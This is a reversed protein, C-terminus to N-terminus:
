WDKFPRSQDEQKEGQGFRLFQTDSEQADLMREAEQASMGRAQQQEQQGPQPQQEQNQQDDKQQGQSSQSQQQQDQKQQDRQPEQGQQSQQNEQGQQDQQNQGQGQQQQDQNQQDEGQNQQQQDNKDQDQDGGGGQQQDQQQQQQELEELKRKVFEYNFRADEDNANLKLTHSYNTLAMRWADKKKEEDSMKEGVRYLVNGLNYYGREQLKIDEASISQNFYKGADDYKDDRYAAAGANYNLRPDDKRKQLARQYEKLAADYEGENYDKLAKNPSAAAAFPMLLGAMLGLTVLERAVEPRGVKERPHTRVNAGAERRKRKREPLVMEALLLLVALGLPWHFQEHYQKTLRMAQDSKPLQSLGNEYLVDVTKASLPLYVGGETAGAIQRLLEENLRSKVVNGQEDRIYDIRGKNDAVRLLEGEPTGVGITFIKMGDKGAVQAAELAGPENDEGDTFIVLVKFNDKEKFADGAVRIAEAIATGGRSVVNVDLAEVCQRFVADDSTLPCQLFAEGAFAVLGLRDTKAQQMLDLAALKARSLRDPQLDTALMSKSTDIAVMIDLGRQHVEEYHFGWRPRALAVILLAVAAIILAFRVKQRTPSLGVTLGPLLRAQIFQTMLAQKRRLAWWFFAAMAPPIVVLLWLLYGHAFNM